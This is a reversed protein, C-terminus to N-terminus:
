VLDYAQNRRAPTFGANVIQNEIDEIGILEFCGAASVVNEELMASGFDNCGLHLSLAAADSGQTVFSAQVNDFNDLFIRAVATTRFYDAHTAKHWGKASLEEGLPNGGPQFTWGIFATFGQTRDQVERIRQLHELRDVPTDVHGFMMTATTLMGLSHAEEMINLWTNSDAKRPAIIQRVRETLIEAGGGPMSKMGAKQLRTLVDLTDIKNVKSLHHIEPPSMAHLHLDPWKILVARFLEEFWEVGLTPHHGNQLLIQIGGLDVTEQIKEFIAAQSLVYGKEEDKPKAYFSCFTCDAVCINTPNLNRDVIYTVQGEPHKKRRIDDALFALTALNANEHLFLGETVSIRGGQLIKEALTSVDM